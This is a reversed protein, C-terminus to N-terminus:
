KLDLQWAELIADGLVKVTLADTRTPYVRVALATGACFAEITSGDLFVRLELQDTVLAIRRVDRTVDENLSSQTRDIVLERTKLDIYIETRELDDSTARVNVGFREPVGFREQNSSVVRLELQGGRIDHEFKQRRLSELERIPYQELQDNRLRLERPFTLCGAYEAQLQDRKSRQEVFWTIMLTRDNHTWIQPAYVDGADLTQHHQPKFRSGDFMGTVVMPALGIRNRWPSIFLADAGNFRVLQPCEWMEGLDIDQLKPDDAALMEGASQWAEFNSSEYLMVVGGRGRIGAGVTMLFKKGECWVIPDRWGVYENPQAESFTLPKPANLVPSIRKQFHVGDYSSARAICPQSVDTAFDYQSAATYFVNLEDDHAISSGSWCGAADLDTDPALAHPLHQWHLLDSSVAHGWHIDGWRAKFPNHQYFLHHRGRWFILGNPDNLWGKPPAFHLKPQHADM